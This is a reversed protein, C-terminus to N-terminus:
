LYPLCWRWFGFVYTESPWTLIWTDDQMALLAAINTESL